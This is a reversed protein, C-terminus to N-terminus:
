IGSRTHIATIAPDTLLGAKIAVYCVYGGLGITLAASNVGIYLQDFGSPWSANTHTGAAYVSANRSAKMYGGSALSTIQLTKMFWSTTPAAPLEDYQLFNTAGTQSARNRIFGTSQINSVVLSANALGNSWRFFHPARGATWDALLPKRVFMLITMASGNFLSTLAASSLLAHGGGTPFEAVSSLEGAIPNPAAALTVGGVYSGNFAANNHAACVSGSPDTMPWVAGFGHTDILYDAFGQPAAAGRFQIPQSLGNIIRGSSSTLGM